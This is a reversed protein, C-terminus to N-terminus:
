ASRVGAVGRVTTCGETRAPTSTPTRVKTVTAVMSVTVPASVNVSYGFGAGNFAVRVARRRAPRSSERRM